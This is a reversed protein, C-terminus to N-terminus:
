RGETSGDRVLAAGICEAYHRNGAADPHISGPVRWVGSLLNPHVCDVYRIGNEQFFRRYHRTDADFILAVLLKAGRTAALDHMEKILKTTVEFKIEDRGSTKWQMYRGSLFPVLALQQGLPWHPANPEPERRDLQGREDLTCYPIRFLTETNGTELIRRWNASNVNRDEHFSAFPYIVTDVRRPRQEFFRELRLLAQYTGHAPTALNAIRQHPAFREQLKWAFTEDDSVEQGFAFSGGVIVVDPEGDPQSAATARSRDPWITVTGGEDYDGPRPIWGLEDDLDHMGPPKDLTREAPWPRFGAGRVLVEALAISVVAVLVLAALKFAIGRGKTM